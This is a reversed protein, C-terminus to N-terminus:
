ACEKSSVFWIFLQLPVAWFHCNNNMRRKTALQSQFIYVELSLMDRPRSGETWVHYVVTTERISVKTSSSAFKRFILLIRSSATHVSSYSADPLLAKPSMEPCMQSISSDFSKYAPHLVSTVTGCTKKEKKISHLSHFTVLKMGIDISKYVQLKGGYIKISDEQWCGNYFRITCATALFHLLISFYAIM